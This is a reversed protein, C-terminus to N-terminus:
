VFFKLNLNSKLDIGPTNEGTKDKDVRCCTFFFMKPKNDLKTFNTKSFKKVIDKFHISDKLRIKEFETEEENSIPIMNYKKYKIDFAKENAQFGLLRDNEGHTIFMLGFAQDTESIKRSKIVEIENEIESIMKNNIVEVAFNLDIFLNFFRKSEFELGFHLGPHQVNLVNNIIIFLGRRKNTLDYISTPTIFPGDVTELDLKEKLDISYPDIRYSENFEKLKNSIETNGIDFFIKVLENCM